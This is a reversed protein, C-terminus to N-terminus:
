YQGRKKIDVIINFLIKIERNTNIRKEQEFLFISNSFYKFVGGILEFFFNSTTKSFFNFNSAM